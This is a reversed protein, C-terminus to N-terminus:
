TGVQGGQNKRGGYPHRKFVGCLWPVLDRGSSVSVKEPQCIALVEQTIITGM